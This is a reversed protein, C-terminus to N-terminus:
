RLVSCVRSKCFACVQFSGVITDAGLFLEIFFPLIVVLDLWNYVDLFFPESISEKDAIFTSNVMEAENKAVNTVDFEDQLVSQDGSIRM